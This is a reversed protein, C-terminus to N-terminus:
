ARGTDAGALKELAPGYATATALVIVRDGPLLSTSGSPIIAEDTRLVAAVLSGGPMRLSQLPIGVCPWDERIRLEALQIRGDALAGIGTIEELDAMQQILTSIAANASFSRIGVKEFVQENGIENVLALMKKVGFESASIQCIAFNTSDVPTAALVADSDRIGADELVEPSSPDGCVVLAKSNRALRGCEDRDQHVIVVEWGKSMFSDCLPQLSAIAGTLLVKM